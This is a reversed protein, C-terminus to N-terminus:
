QLHSTKFSTLHPALQQRKGSTRQSLQESCSSLCVTQGFTLHVGDFFKPEQHKGEVIPLVSAINGCRRGFTLRDCKLFLYLIVYRYCYNPASWVTVLGEDFM